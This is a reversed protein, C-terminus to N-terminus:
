ASVVMRTGFTITFSNVFITQTGMEITDSDDLTINLDGMNYNRLIIKNSASNFTEELDDSISELYSVGKDKHKGMMDNSSYVEVEIEGFVMASKEDLTFNSKEGRRQKKVVIFPFSNAKFERGEIDPVKTYVFKRQINGLPDPVNSRNNILNYINAYPQSNLNIRSVITSSTIGM